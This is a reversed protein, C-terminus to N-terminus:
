SCLKAVGHPQITILLFCSKKSMVVMQRLLTEIRAQIDIVGRIISPLHLPEQDPWGTSAIMKVCNKDQMSASAHLHVYPVQFEVRSNPSCLAGSIKMKCFCNTLYM